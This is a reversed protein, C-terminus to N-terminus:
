GHRHVAIAQRASGELSSSALLLPRDVFFCSVPLPVPLPRDVIRRNNRDELGGRIASDRCVRLTGHALHLSWVRGADLCSKSRTSPWPVSLTVRM